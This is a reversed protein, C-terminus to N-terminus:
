GVQFALEVEQGYLQDVALPLWVGNGENPNEMAINSITSEMQEVPYAQSARPM